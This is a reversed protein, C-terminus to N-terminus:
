SREGKRGGGDLPKKLNGLALTAGNLILELSRKLNGLTNSIWAKISSVMSEQVSLYQALSLSQVLKRLVEEESRSKDEEEEGEEEDGEGERQAKEALAAVHKLMTAKLTQEAYDFFTKIAGTLSGTRHLSLVVPLMLESLPQQQNEESDNGGGGGNM